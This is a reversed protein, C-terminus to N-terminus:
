DFVDTLRGYIGEAKCYGYMHPPHSMDGIRWGHIDIDHIVSFFLNSMAHPGHGARCAVVESPEAIVIDGVELTLFIDVPRWVTTEEARVIPYLWNSPYRYQVSRRSQLLEKVLEGRRDRELLTMQEVQETLHVM